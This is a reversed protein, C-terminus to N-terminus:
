PTENTLLQPVVTELIRMERPSIWRHGRRIRDVTQAGRGLAHAITQDDLQGRWDDIRGAAWATMRLSWPVKARAAADSKVVDWTTGLDTALQRPTAVPQWDLDPLTETSHGDSETKDPTSGLGRVLDAPDRGLAAAIAFLNTISMGHHGAEFQVVANRTLDIDHALAEQTLGGIERLERLRQGFIRRQRDRLTRLDDRREADPDSREDPHM